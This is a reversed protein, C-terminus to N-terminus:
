KAYNYLILAMQERTIEKNPLFRGDGAGSVIHNESAWAVFPSYWSGAPADLFASGGYDAGDVGAMRGLVTVFMGRTMPAGPSFTTSSTGSFLSHSSAYAVADYYWSSNKVDAFSNNWIGAQIESKNDSQSNTLLTLTVVGADTFGDKVAHATITLKGDEFATKPIAVKTGAEYKCTPMYSPNLYNQNYYITAGETPCSFTIYYNGDGGDTLSAAPAAVKGISSVAPKKEMELLTSWIWYRSDSATSAARYLDDKTMPMMMRISRENDLLGKEYWYNELNFDKSGWKESTVLYRQSFARVSLRFESPEGGEFIHGIVQDRSMVGKPDYYDQTDYNWYEYLMPFNYRKVGYLEEWTYTDLNDYGTQDMEWFRIEDKGEFTLNLKKLGSNGSKDQAYRLFEPLTVGQCEQHVTTVFRDLMSYNYVTNDILGKQLDKEMDSVPLQSVLIQENKDNTIYFLATGVTQGNPRTKAQATIGSSMVLALSLSVAAVLKWPFIGRKGGM